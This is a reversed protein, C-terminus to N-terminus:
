RSARLPADLFSVWGHVSRSGEGLEFGFGELADEPRERPSVATLDLVQVGAVAHAPGGRQRPLERGEAQRQVQRAEARESAEDAGGHREQLGPRARMM